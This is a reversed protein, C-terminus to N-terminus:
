QPLAAETAKPAAAALARQKAAAAFVECTNNTIVWTAQNFCLDLGLLECEAGFEDVVLADYFDCGIGLELSEGPFLVDGGLLNPGWSPNDFETLYLQEIVFDSDNVVEISTGPAVFFGEEDDDCGAAALCAFTALAPALLRNTLM